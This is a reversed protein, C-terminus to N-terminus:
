ININHMKKFKSYYINVSKGETDKAIVFKNGSKNTNIYLKRYKIGNFFYFVDNYFYYNEIKHEGYKDVIMADDPIKDVYDYNINKSSSKNESNTKPSVWRLNSVHYNTRDQKIHDVFTKHVPDDNKIFQTAVVRHKQESKGNLSIQVYGSTKNVSEKIIVDKSINKIPYPFYNKIVYKDGYNKYKLPIWEANEENDAEKDVVDVYNHKSSSLSKLIKNEQLLADREATLQAIIQKLQEIETTM